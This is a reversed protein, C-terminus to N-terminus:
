EGKINAERIIHGYEVALDRMYNGFDLGCMGVAILGQQDLKPKVDPAKLATSFWGTLQALQDSSTKAPAVIGYFIEAEYKGLGAQAFTPVDSLPAVQQASATVLGRLTGSKLHPVVTPFDAVVASVHGGMLTNIAPPTGPFPVYAMDVNAALKFVEFAIQLSSAPSGAVSLEGPKARAAAVLDALTKYPSSGQVVLVIPTSALHCVPAFSGSVDYSLPKLSPNIVFTNAVLLITNGDPASRMVAETGILTSGGPRNEVVLNPGNTRGFQEGMLRSLIDPGSGPPYPVVLRITRAQSWAGHGFPVLLVAFMAALAAALETSKLFRKRPSKM